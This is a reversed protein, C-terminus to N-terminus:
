SKLIKNSFGGREKIKVIRAVELDTPRFKALRLLSLLVEQVDAFENIDKYDSDKLEQIEEHLKLKLFEYSEKKDAERWADDPMGPIRDRIMKEM